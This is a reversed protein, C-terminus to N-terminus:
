IRPKCRHHSAECSKRGNMKEYCGLNFRAYPQGAIAAEELHYLAKKEDKEVGQGNQYAIFLNCHADADGLEASMTYYKFAGDYDGKDDQIEGLKCLAVPDNVAVRKMSQM